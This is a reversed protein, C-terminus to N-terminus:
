QISDIKVTYISNCEYVTLMYLMNDKYYPQDVMRDSLSEGDPSGTRLNGTFSVAMIGM